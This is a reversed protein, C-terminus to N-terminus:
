CASDTCMEGARASGNLHALASDHPVAKFSGRVIGQTSTIVRPDKHVRGTDIPGMGGLGVIAAAALAVAGVKERTRM